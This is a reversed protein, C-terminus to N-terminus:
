LIEAMLPEKDLCANFNYHILSKYLTNCYLSQINADAGM